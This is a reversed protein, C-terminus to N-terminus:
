ALVELDMPRSDNQDLIRTEGDDIMLSSDGLPGDVPAVMAMIMFRLGNVGVARGNHTKIFKSFGIERLARELSNIPYDPLLVTTEKSVHERLFQPDFHDHHQHSIYLYTPHTLKTVDVEENSPFPFWSAFYAPNLWPDCLITGHRTEIFLGAQGLFTIKM